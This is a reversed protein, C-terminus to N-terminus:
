PDRRVDFALGDLDFARLACQLDHQWILDRDLHVRAGDLDVRAVLGLTRARHPAGRAREDGVEDGADGLAELLLELDGADAEAGRQLALVQLDREAVAVVHDIRDRFPDRNSRRFRGLDQDGADVLLFDALDRGFDAREPRGLRVLALAHLVRAFVDEALFALLLLPLRRHGLELVCGLPALRAHAAGNLGAGAAPRPEGYEAGGLVDIRLDDVVQL